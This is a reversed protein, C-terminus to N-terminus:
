RYSPLFSNINQPWVHVNAASAAQLVHLAAEVRGQSVNLLFAGLPCTEDDIPAPPGSSKTGSLHVTRLRGSIAGEMTGLAFRALRTAREQLTQVAVGGGDLSLSPMRPGLLPRLRVDCYDQHEKEGPEYFRTPLITMACPVDREAGVAEAATEFANLTDLWGLREPSACSRAAESCGGKREYVRLAEAYARQAFASHPRAAMMGHHVSNIYRLSHGGHGVFQTRTLLALTASLPHLVLVDTDLYIGGHEALLAISGFDGQHNLPLNSFYSPLPFASLPASSANVVAVDLEPAAHRVVSSYAQRIWILDAEAPSAAGAHVGEAVSFDGAKPTTWWLWVRPRSSAPFFVDLSVEECAGLSTLRSQGLLADRLPRLPGARFLYYSVEYSFAYCIVCLLLTFLTLLYCCRSAPHTGLPEYGSAGQQCAM